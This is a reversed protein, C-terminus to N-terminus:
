YLVRNVNTLVHARYFFKCNPHQQAVAAKLDFQHNSCDTFDVHMMGPCRELLATFSAVTLQHNGYFAAHTLSSCKEALALVATDTLCHCNGFNAHQLGSCKAALALVSANTLRDCGTFVAHQMSSCSGALAIVAADTVRCMSFNVHTLRPCREALSIIAAGTVSRCGSFNVYTLECCKDALELVAADTVKCASFNVHALGRCKDALAMLAADGPKICGGFNAHTLGRCKDALEIVVEDTRLLCPGSFDAHTLGPFRDVFAILAADTLNFCHSLNAHTLGSNNVTRDGSHMDAVLTLVADTVILHLGWPFNSYDLHPCGKILALLAETTLRRCGRFNAHKLGSLHEALVIVHADEIDQRQRMTVATTRPFLACLGGVFAGMRRRLLLGVRPNPTPKLQWGALAELPVKKGWSFDLHVADLDRCVHRWLTSVQPVVAMLTKTDLMSFVICLVEDQLYSIPPDEDPEATPAAVDAAAAAAAAAAGFRVISIVKTAAQRWRVAAANQIALANGSQNRAGASTALELGLGANVRPKGYVDEANEQQDRLDSVRGYLREVQSVIAHLEDQMAATLGPSAELEALKGVATTAM